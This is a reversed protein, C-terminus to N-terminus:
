QCQPLSPKKNCIAPYKGDPETSPNSPSSPSVGPKKDSNERNERVNPKGPGDPAISGAGFRGSDGSSRGGSGDHGCGRNTFECSLASAPNTMSPSSIVLTTLLTILGGLATLNLTIFAVSKKYM